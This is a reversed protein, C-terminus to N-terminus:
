IALGYEAINSDPAHLVKRASLKDIRNWTADVFHERIKGLFVSSSEPFIHLVFAPFEAGSQNARDSTSTGRKKGLNHSM